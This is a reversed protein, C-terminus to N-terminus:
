LAICQPVIIALEKLKVSDLNELAAQFMTLGSSTSIDTFVVIIDVHRKSLWSQQFSDTRETTNDFINCIM